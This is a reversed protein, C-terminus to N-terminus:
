DTKQKDKKYNLMSLLFLKSFGRKKSTTHTHLFSIQKSYSMFAQKNSASLNFKM